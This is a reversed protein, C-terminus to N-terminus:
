QALGIHKMILYIILGIFISIVAQKAKQLIDAIKQTNKEIGMLHERVMNYIDKNDM